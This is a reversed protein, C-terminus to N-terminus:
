GPGALAATHRAIVAEEDTPLVLVPVAGAGIRTRGATNAAADTALGLWGMADLVRARIPAANEGVGGTFVLADLGGLDATLAGIEHRIRFVYYEIAEQAEPLPSALLDRMDHSLGSLGLLGSEKYLLRTIRASDWGREMLYLLVGPDIQGCRTGMPLGDLATFGMTSGVARGGRLACMSAGNGLHAVIVRGAHLDPALEALRGSVFEYSLGHFGYRRVGEAYLRRPLAFTDNVFPQTRHFATDFCAVQVAAPFRRGAAAIAALNHPQHLPALPVLAELEASLAPTIRQPARHDPGGHVVRHGIATIGTDELRALIAEIAGDHDVAGLPSVKGEMSLRAQGGIREVLGARIRKAGDAGFLAFKISSSGANLTLLASM